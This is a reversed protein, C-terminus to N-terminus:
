SVFDAADIRALVRAIDVGIGFGLAILDDLVEAGLARVVEGEDHMLKPRARAWRLCDMEAPLVDVERAPSDQYTPRPDHTLIAPRLRLLAAAVDDDVLRQQDSQLRMSRQMGLGVVEDERGDGAGGEVLHVEVVALPYGCQSRRAHPRTAEVVAAM